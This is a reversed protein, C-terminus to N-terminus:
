GKVAGGSVRQVLIKQLFYTTLLVPFVAMLIAVSLNGLEVGRFTNFGAIAAPLTKADGGTLLLSYFMENWSLVFGFIGSAIIGPRVVPLAIRYFAQFQDCGDVLGQEIVEPPVEDFFGILFWTVVPTVFTLHAAIVAWVTDILRLQYMILFLPIILIAPPIMQAMLVGFRMRTGGTRFRSFSYAAPCGTILALTVTVTGVLISNLLYQPTDTEFLVENWSSTVPQFGWLSPLSIEEPPKISTIGIWLYPFIVVFVAGSLVIYRLITIAREEPINRM